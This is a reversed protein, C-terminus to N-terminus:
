TCTHHLTDLAVFMASHLLFSRPDACTHYRSSTYSRSYGAEGEVLVYYCTFIPANVGNYTPSTDGMYKDVM